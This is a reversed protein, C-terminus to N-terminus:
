GRVLEILWKVFAWGLLLLEISLAFLFLTWPLEFFPFVVSFASVTGGIMEVIPQLGFPLESVEPLFFTAVALINFIFALAFTLLM